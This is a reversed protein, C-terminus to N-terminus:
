PRQDSPAWIRPYPSLHYVCLYFKLFQYTCCLFIRLIYSLKGAKSLDLVAERLLCWKFWSRLFFFFFSYQSDPLLSKWAFPVALAFVRLNFYSTKQKELLGSFSVISSGQLSSQSMLYLPFPLCPCTLYATDRQWPFLNLKGESLLWFGNFLSVHHSPNSFIM